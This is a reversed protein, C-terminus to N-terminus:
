SCEVLVGDFDKLAAWMREEVRLVGGEVRDSYKGGTARRRQNTSTVVDAVCRAMSATQLISDALSM